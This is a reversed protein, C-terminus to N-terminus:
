GIRIDEELYTNEHNKPVKRALLFNTSTIGLQGIFMLIILIALNWPQVFNSETIGVSNGSTGFASCVEFLFEIFTIKYGTQNYNQIVLNKDLIAQNSTIYMIMTFGFIIILSSLFIAFANKVTKNPIKRKFFTTSNIGRFWNMMSKFIIFLTTTRIGGGTSSPSTGIFMLVAMIFVSTETMNQFNITSFGASRCSFCNFFIAFNKNASPNQGWIAITKISNDSLTIEITNPYNVITPFVSNIGVYETLFMLLISVIAVILSSLLCLKSFGSLRERNLKAYEYKNFCQYLIKYKFFWDFQISLDYIVPFGIGGIYILILILVQISIGSDNRFLQLSSGGFLDFGANNIASATIFLGHWFSAGYNGYCSNTINSTNDFTLGLYPINKTDYVGNDFTLQSSAINYNQSGVQFQISKWGDNSTLLNQLNQQIYFPTTYFIISLVFTFIIQLILLFFFIKLIMFSSNSLKTGGREINLLTTNFLNRKIFKKLTKGILYFLSIYGFGGVEILVFIIFQGFISYDTEISNIVSLGTNTFASASTFLADLFNYHFDQTQLNLYTNSISRNFNLVYENNVYVYSDYNFSCPLYLLIAGIIWIIIIGLFIKKPYTWHMLIIYKLKSIFLDNFRLFFNASKKFSSKIKKRLKKTKYSM